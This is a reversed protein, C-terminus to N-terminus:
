YGVYADGRAEAQVGPVQSVSGYRDIAYRVGAIINDIPNRIDDHGPLKHADFTPGITQMLGQSPTGKAANSDWDNVANPDGGSEREIITAIAAPDMKEPPVGTAALIATAQRIWDGVEGPPVVGSAVVPAGSGTPADSGRGSSSGPGATAADAPHRPPSTGPPPAMVEADPGALAGFAGIEDAVGRLRGAAAALEAEARRVAARAAETPGRVADGAMRDALEPPADPTLAARRAAGALALAQAAQQDVERQLGELTTGIGELTTGAEAIARRDQEGATAFTAVWAGFAASGAGEWRGEVAARGRDVARVSGEVGDGVALVQAAAARVAGPDVTRLRAAIAALEAAAPEGALQGEVDGPM